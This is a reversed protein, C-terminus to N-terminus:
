AEEQRSIAKVHSTEAGCFQCFDGIEKGIDAEDEKRFWRFMKDCCCVYRTDILEGTAYDYIDSILM